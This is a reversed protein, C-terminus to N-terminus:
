LKELFKLSIIEAVGIHALDLQFHGLANHTQSGLFIQSPERQGIEIKVHCCRVINEPVVPDREALSIVQSLERLTLQGRSLPVLGSSNIAAAWAQHKVM